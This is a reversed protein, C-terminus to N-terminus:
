SVQKRIWERVNGPGMFFILFVCVVLITGLIVAALKWDFVFGAGMGLFGGITSTIKKWQRKLWSPSTEADREASEEIKKDVVEPPADKPIVVTPKEPPLPTPPADQPDPIDEATPEPEPRPKPMPVPDNDEHEYYKAIWNHGGAANMKKAAWARVQGATKGQLISRNAAIAGPGILQSVQTDPHARFLDKADATGLFHALYLDGGTCNMGIARQNDETFRAGLEIAIKPEFRLALLEARTRGRGLDPRHKNVVGIWTADIFQFLGSASSTAAKARPKGASEITIICNLTEDSVTRSVTNTV